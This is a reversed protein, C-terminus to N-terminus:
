VNGDGKLYLSIGKELETGFNVFDINDIKQTIFPIEKSDDVFCFSYTEGTLFKSDFNAEEEPSLYGLPLNILSCFRNELIAWEQFTFTENNFVVKILM